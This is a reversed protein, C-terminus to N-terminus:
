KWDDESITFKEERSIGIRVVDESTESDSITVTVVWPTTNDNLRQGVALIGAVKNVTTELDKIDGKSCYVDIYGYDIDYNFTRNNGGSRFEKSYENAYASLSNVIENRQSTLDSKITIGDDTEEVTVDTEKILSIIKDKDAGIMDFAVNDITIEKTSNEEVNQNSSNLETKETERVDSITIQPDKAKQTKEGGCATMALCVIATTIVILSKKKM